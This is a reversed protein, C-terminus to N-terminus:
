ARQLLRYCLCFTNQATASIALEGAEALPKTFKMTTHTSNQTISTDTLTQQATPMLRVTNVTEGRMYYKGPNTASVPQDPLAIVAYSGVM